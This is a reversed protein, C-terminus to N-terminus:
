RIHVGFGSAIQTVKHFDLTKMQAYANFIFIKRTSSLLDKQHSELAEPSDRYKELVGSDTCKGSRSRINEQYLTVKIFNINNLKKKEKCFM